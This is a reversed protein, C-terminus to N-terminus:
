YKIIKADPPKFINGSKCRILNLAKGESSVTVYLVKEGLAKNRGHM